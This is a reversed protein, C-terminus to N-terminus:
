KNLYSIKYETFVKLANLFDSWGNCNALASKTGKADMDWGSEKIKVLTDKEKKELTFETKVKYEVNYGNWEFVVKEYETVQIVNILAADEGWVWLIEQAKDMNKRADTTFYKKVNEAKVINDWVQEVPAKIFIGISFNLDGSGANEYLPTYNYKKM